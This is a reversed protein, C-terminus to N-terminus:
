LSLIFLVLDDVGGLIPVIWDPILDIPSIVYAVAVFLIFKLHVGVRRDHLLRWYLNVFKPFIAIFRFFDRPNKLGNHILRGLNIAM